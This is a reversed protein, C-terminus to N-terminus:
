RITGLVRKYASRITRDIERQRIGGQDFSTAVRKTMFTMAKEIPVGAEALRCSEVFVANNREGWAVRAQYAPPYGANAHGMPTTDFTVDGNAIPTWVDALTGYLPEWRENAWSYGPAPPIAVQSGAVKLEGGVKRGRYILRLACSHSPTPEIVHVHLRGRATYTMLPHLHKTVVYAFVDAALDQDDIDIAGRNRSAAGLVLGIGEACSWELAAATRPTTTQWAEAIPITAYGDSNKRLPIVALGLAALKSSAERYDTDM